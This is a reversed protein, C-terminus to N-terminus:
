SKRESFGPIIFVPRGEALTSRDEARVQVQGDRVSGAKKWAAERLGKPVAVWLDADEAIPSPSRVHWRSEDWQLWGVPRPVRAPYAEIESALAKAKRGIEAFDPLGAILAKAKPRLRAADANAPDMWPVNVDVDSQTLTALVPSLVRSLSYSGANAYNCIRRLLAMKLLPDIDPDSRVASTLDIMVADWNAALTKAALVAKFKRAIKTQPSVDHSAVNETVVFKTREKGDFGVIYSLLNADTEYPRSLYYRQPTSIKPEKYRVIWVDDVLLTSLLEILQKRPSKDALDRRAFADLYLQYDAVSAAGPDNPYKKLFGACAEAREKANAAALGEVGGRWPSAL